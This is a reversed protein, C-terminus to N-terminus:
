AAAPITFHFITGGGPNDEVSMNGGHAQVISQCISLGVGMGEPKSTVFPQFLKARIEPALGPGTDCVSIKVTQSEGLSTVVFLARRASENMAEIANRMLNLLVQQIQVKDVRAMTARPDPQFTFSIGSAKAGILALAAAEEILKQLNEVKHEPEGKRVFSRLRKVIAGARDAQEAAKRQLPKAKEWAGSAILREAAKLYNQIATLPQNVEHALASVMQGLETLRSVHVLESQLEHLRRENDQRETLDRVFGTFLRRGGIKVEGVALEAPFTTGDKRQGVVVRGVGIIRREGTALYRAIHADHEERHPSPMLISVNKGKVEAASYGFLREAMTSFSEIIGKEDIVVMGDPITELISHLLAERAKAEIALDQAEVALRNRDTVNRVTVQVATRGGWPIVGSIEEGDSITGDLRVWRGSSLSQRKATTRVTRIRQKVMTRSSPDAFDELARGVIEAADRAGFFEVCASNAYAIHEDLVVLVADPNLEMAERYLDASSGISVPDVAVSPSSIRQLDGM